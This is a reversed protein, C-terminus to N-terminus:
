FRVDFFDAHAVDTIVDRWSVGSNEVIANYRRKCYQVAVRYQTQKRQFVRGYAHYGLASMDGGTLLLPTNHQILSLSPLYMTLPNNTPNCNTDM